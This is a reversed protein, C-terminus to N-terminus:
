EHKMNDRMSIDFRPRTDPHKTGDERIQRAPLPSCVPRREMSAIHTPSSCPISLFGPGCAPFPVSSCHAIRPIGDNGQRSRDTLNCVIRPQGEVGHTDADSIVVTSDRLPGMSPSRLSPLRRIPWKGRTRRGVTRVFLMAVAPIREVRHTDDMSVRPASATCGHPTNM